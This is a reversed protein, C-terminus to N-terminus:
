KRRSAEVADQVFYLSDDGKKAPMGWGTFAPVAGNWVRLELDRAIREMDEDSLSVRSREAQERVFDLMPREISLLRVLAQAFAMEPKLEAVLGTKTVM